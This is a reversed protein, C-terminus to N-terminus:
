LGSVWFVSVDLIRVALNQVSLYLVLSHKKMFGLTKPPFRETLYDDSNRQQM